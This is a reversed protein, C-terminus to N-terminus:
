RTTFKSLISSMLQVKYDKRWTQISLINKLVLLETILISMNLLKTMFSKSLTALMMTKLSVRLKTLLIM